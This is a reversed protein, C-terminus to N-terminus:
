EAMSLRRIVDNLENQCQAMNGHMEDRSRKAVDADFQAKQMAM